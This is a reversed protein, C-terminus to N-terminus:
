EKPADPIDEAPVPEPDKVSETEVSGEVGKNDTPTAASTPYGINEAVQVTYKNLKKGKGIDDQGDYQIRIYKGVPVYQMRDDLIASGWVFFMGDKSEIHYRAGIDKVDDRPTKNVLVGEISDGAQVPKWVGPEITKWKKEM